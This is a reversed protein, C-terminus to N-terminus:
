IFLTLALYIQKVFWFAVAAVWLGGCAIGASIVATEIADKMAIRRVSVQKSTIGKEKLEQRIEKAKDADSKYM